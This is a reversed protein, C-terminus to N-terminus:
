QHKRPGWDHLYASSFHKTTGTYGRLQSRSLPADDKGANTVESPWGFTKGKGLVNSECGGAHDPSSPTEDDFRSIKQVFM